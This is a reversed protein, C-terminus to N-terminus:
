RCSLNSVEHAHGLNEMNLNPHLLVMSVWGFWRLVSASPGPSAPNWQQQASGTYRNDHSTETSEPLHHCRNCQGAFCTFLFFFFLKKKNTECRHLSTKSSLSVIWACIVSHRTEDQASLEEFLFYALVRSEHRKDLCFTPTRSLLSMWVISFVSGCKRECEGAALCLLSPKFTHIKIVVQLENHVKYNWVFLCWVCM